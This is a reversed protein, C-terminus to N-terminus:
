LEPSASGTNTLSGNALLFVHDGDGAKYRFLGLGGTSAMLWIIMSENEEIIVCLVKRSSLCGCPVECDDAVGTGPSGIGRGLLTPMLCVHLTGDM